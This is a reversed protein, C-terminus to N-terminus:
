LVARISWVINRTWHLWNYLMSLQSEWASAGGGSWVIVLARKRGSIFIQSCMCKLTETFIIHHQQTNSSISTLWNNGFQGQIWCGGKLAQTFSQECRCQSKLKYHFYSRNYTPYWRHGVSRVSRYYPGNPNWRPRRSIRCTISRGVLVSLRLLYHSCLRVSQICPPCRRLLWVWGSWTEFCSEGLWYCIDPTWKM